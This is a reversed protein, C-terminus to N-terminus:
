YRSSQCSKLAICDISHQFCSTYKACTSADFALSERVTYSMSGLIQAQLYMMKRLAAIGTVSVLILNQYLIESPNVITGIKTSSHIHIRIRKLTTNEKHTQCRDCTYTAAQRSY